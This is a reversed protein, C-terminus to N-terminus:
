LIKQYAMIYEQVMKAISFENEIRNRGAKGFSDRLQDGNLLTEIKEALEGPSAVPVLFGTVNEQIIEDTGGGRSAVVPKGLSMYELISNSIGETFTSLVCVDMANILSETDDQTGLLLFNNEYEKKIHKRAEESNTKNGIALFIVDKRKELILQAAKFYTPYDKLHSFSAVMGVVFRAHINLRERIAAADTINRIRDFNFGNHICLSKKAPAGYSMLGAQSNSIILSSFPFTLMGRRFSKNLRDKPDPADTIMGNVLKMKLLMTVPIAYIATMGDWCHIINAKSKKCISYLKRFVFADKKMYRIIYHITINMDLVEKYHIDRNMIILEFGIDSREKLMKMLETLRREKGGPGLSDIFFLIKM